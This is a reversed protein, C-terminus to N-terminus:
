IANHQEFFGDKNKKFRHTANKPCFYVGKEEEMTISFGTAAYCKPCVERLKM